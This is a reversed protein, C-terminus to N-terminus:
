AAARQQKLHDTCVAIAAQRTELPRENLQQAIAKPDPKLWADWMWSGNPNKSLSLARSVHYRGCERRWHWDDVQMWRM